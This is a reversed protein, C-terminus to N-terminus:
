FFEALRLRRMYNKIRSKLEINSCKPTPAFKLGRLLINTQYRSLMKSSLNFTKPIVIETGTNKDKDKNSM